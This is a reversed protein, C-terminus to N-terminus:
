KQIESSADKKNILVQVSEALKQIDFPKTIYDDAYESLNELELDQKDVGSVIIRPIHSLGPEERLDACLSLGDRGPLKLDILFIDPSIEHAIEWANEADKACNVEFGMPNLLLRVIEQQDPQDDVVLIKCTM